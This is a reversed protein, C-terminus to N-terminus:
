KNFQQLIHIIKEKGSFSFQIFNDSEVKLYNTTELPHIMKEQGNQSTVNKKGDSGLSMVSLGDRNIM